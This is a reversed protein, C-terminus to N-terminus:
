RRDEERARVVLSRRIDKVGTDFLDGASVQSNDWIKEAAPFYRKRPTLGRWLGTVGRGRISGPAKEM